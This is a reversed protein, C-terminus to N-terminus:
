GIDVGFHRNSLILIKRYCSLISGDLRGGHIDAPVATCGCRYNSRLLPRRPTWDYLILRRLFRTLNVTHQWSLCLHSIYIHMYMFVKYYICIHTNTSMKIDYPFAVWSKIISSLIIYATRKIGNSNYHLGYVKASSLTDYLIAIRSREFWNNWILHCDSCVICCAFVSFLCFLM